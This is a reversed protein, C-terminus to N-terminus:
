TGLERYLALFAAEERDILGEWPLLCILAM